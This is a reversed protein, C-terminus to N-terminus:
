GILVNISGTAINGQNEECQCSLLDGIRAAPQGNILVTPSGTTITCPHTTVDGLRAAPSGNILVNPSGTAIANTLAECRTNGEDDKVEEWCLTTDGVRAAGPM